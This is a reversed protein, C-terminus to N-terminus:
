VLSCCKTKVTVNTDQSRMYNIGKDLNNCSLIVGNSNIDTKIKDKSRKKLKPDSHKLVQISKESCKSFAFREVLNTFENSRVHIRTRQKNEENLKEVDKESFRIDSQSTSLSNEVVYKSGPCCVTSINFNESNDSYQHTTDICNSSDCPPIETKSNVNRCRDNQKRENSNSFDKNNKDNDNKDGRKKKDHNEKNCDSKYENMNNNSPGNSGPGGSGDNDSSLDSSDRRTLKQKLKDKRKKTEKEDNDSTDSSSCSTGRSSPKIRRIRNADLKRILDPSTLASNQLSRHSHHGHRYLDENDSEVEEFIQNLLVPSSHVNQFARSATRRGASPLSRVPSEVTSRSDSDDSVYGEAIKTIKSPSDNADEEEEEDENISEERILSIRRFPYNREYTIRNNGSSSSPTLSSTLQSYNDSLNDSKSPSEGFSLTRPSLSLPALHPKPKSETATEKVENMSNLVRLQSERQRRLLREAWLYYTANIHDYANEELAKLILEKTGIRMEVMKQVIATHDGDSIDERSILPLIHIPSLGQTLWQNNLIEEMHARKNVDRILMSKILQQCIESIEPRIKYKCDMIMTLTESDNAEEFPPAGCVLMFLIVGLSWVDVAPADYSDGLLIEPASYALSGCSTELKSGPIFKNSFGFDTLKVFGSKKFFVVNEPKLDRHVVHLQHCYHIADVIQRFYKRAVDEDMGNEHKMIYDYLDGGDGLELILYLKSPTDIVQYLRIVNPHQVLKMCRVEQFLHSKSVEDLKTKDIVKVAVKEGTYVHKALKVVALHGRGITEGLDYLGAIKVENQSKNNRSTM